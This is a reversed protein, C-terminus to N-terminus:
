DAETGSESLGQHANGPVAETKNVNHVSGKTFGGSERAPLKVSRDTPYKEACFGKGARYRNTTNTPVGKM